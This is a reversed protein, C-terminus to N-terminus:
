SNVPGGRLASEEGKRHTGAANSRRESVPRSGLLHREGIEAVLWRTLRAGQADVSERAAPECGGSWRQKHAGCNRIAGAGCSSQELSCSRVRTRIAFHWMERQRRSVARQPKVRRSCNGRGRTASRNTGGGRATDQNRRVRRSADLPDVACGAREIPDRDFGAGAQEAAFALGDCGDV